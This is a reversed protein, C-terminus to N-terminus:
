LDLGSIIAFTVVLPWARWVDEGDLAIVPRPVPTALRLDFRLSSRPRYSLSLEPMFLARDAEVPSALGDSARIGWLHLGLGLGVDLRGFARRADVRLALVQTAVATDRLRAPAAFSAEVSAGFRWPGPTLTPGAAVGVLLDAALGLTAVAGVGAGVRLSEPPPPPPAPPTPEPERRQLHTADAERPRVAWAPRVPARPPALAALPDIAVALALALAASLAQCDADTLVRRGTRGDPERLRLEAVLRAPSGTIVVFAKRAALPEFPDRGGLREAVRRALDEYTVCTGLSPPLDPAVDITLAATPPDPPPTALLLATVVAIM